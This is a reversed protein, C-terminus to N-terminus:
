REREKQDEMWEKRKRANRRWWWYLMHKPLIRYLKTCMWLYLCRSIYSVNKHGGIAKFNEKYLRLRNESSVGEDAVYIAIPCAVYEKDYGEECIKTLVNRDAAIRHNLDFLHAKHCDTRVFEAQHCFRFVGQDLGKKYVRGWKYKMIFDGCVVAVKEDFTKNEFVKALTDASVFIDGANMFNIWDGTALGIGKNMADYIGRDPESQIVINAKPYAAGVKKVIDLTNDKSAGDVVIYEINSYTQDLVSRMTQEIVDSANYCVTVVTIRVKEM